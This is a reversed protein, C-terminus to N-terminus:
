YFSYKLNTFVCEESKCHDIGHLQRNLLEQNSPVCYEAHESKFNFSTLIHHWNINVKPNDLFKMKVTGGM